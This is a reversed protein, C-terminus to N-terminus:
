QYSAIKQQCLTETLHQLYKVREALWSLQELSIRYSPKYRADVYASRLLEFRNKEEETSQPFVRAFEPEVSSVRQHLKELDHTSPKYRTFVLLITSYLSETVQHLNFAAHNYHKEKLCFYYIERLQTAKTHWYNFDEQALKRRENIHIEIPEALTFKGSDFLMIGERLIDIYFYQSKRLRKNFFKIDEAILSVPTRHITKFLRQALKNNQEVRQAQRPTETVVLLDYDSQYKPLLTQEDIDEVWDGRAYSGFLILMELDIEETIIWLSLELEQRKREPLHSLDTKM